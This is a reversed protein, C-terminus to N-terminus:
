VGGGTDVLELKDGTHVGAEELSKNNDLVNDGKQLGPNGGKYGFLTAAQSAAKRVSTTKDWTFDKPAPTRPAFVIVHLDGTSPKYEEVELPEPRTREHNSSSPQM